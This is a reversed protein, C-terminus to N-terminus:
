RASGRSSGWCRTNLITRIVASDSVVRIHLTGGPAIFFWLCLGPPFSSASVYRGARNSVVLNMFVKGFGDRWFGSKPKHNFFNETEPCNWPSGFDWLISRRKRVKAFFSIIVWFSGCITQSPTLKQQGECIPCPHHQYLLRLESCIM